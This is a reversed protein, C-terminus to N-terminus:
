ASTARRITIPRREPTQDFEWLGFSGAVIPSIEGKGPRHGFARGDRGLPRWSVSEVASTLDPQNFHVVKGERLETALLQAAGGVHLTRLPVVRVGPRKRRLENAITVNGGIEDFVVPANSERAVRHIFGAAWSVGPRFALLEINVNGDDDRWVEVVACATQERPADFAIVSRSPRDTPFADRGLAVWRDLDLAGTAADTPWLCLYERAFSVVDMKARRKRITRMDTLTGIGPHVRRWVREDDPDEDDRAAYDLIGLDRDAKHRGEQLLDWFMGHRSRGPTGAVIMQALPGRTDQLPRVANMFDVGKQGDHEGAEDIVIDDAAASRVAGAEPPVVWIRSGNAFELKERGGNRYLKLTGDGGDKSPGFGRAELTSGMELIISSAITGSQATTVCRYGPRGIARGILVSWISTSKASRRPMEIVCTDYRVGEGKRAELLRAVREGQPTLPMGLMSAGKHAAAIDTKPSTPSSWTPKAM